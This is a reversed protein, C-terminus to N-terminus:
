QLRLHARLSAVYTLIWEHESAGLLQTENLKKVRLELEQLFAKSTEEKQSITDLQEVTKALALILGEVVNRFMRIEKKNDSM